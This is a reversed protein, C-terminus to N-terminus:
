FKYNQIACLWITYGAAKEHGNGRYFRAMEDVKIHEKLSRLSYTRQTDTESHLIRLIDQEDFNEIAYDILYKYLGTNSCKVDLINMRDFIDYAYNKFIEEAQEKYSTILSLGINIFKSDNEDTNLLSKLYNIRHNDDYNKIYNNLGLCYSETNPDSFDWVDKNGIYYVVSPYNTNEKLKNNCYLWTLKCGSLKNNEPFGKEAYLLINYNPLNPKKEILSQMPNKHHDIIIYNHNNSLKDIITIPTLDLFVVTSKEPLNNIINIDDEHAVNNHRWQYFKSDPEFYEWIVRSLEGDNCPFHYFVHYM